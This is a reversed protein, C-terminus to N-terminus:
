IGQGVRLDSPVGAAHETCLQRLEPLRAAPGAAGILVDDVNLGGCRSCWCRTRRSTTSARTATSRTRCGRGACRGRTQRASSARRRVCPRNVLLLLFYRTRVSFLFSQPDQLGVRCVQGQDARASSARRRLFPRCQASSAVSCLSCCSLCPGKLM